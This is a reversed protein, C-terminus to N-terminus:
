KETKTLWAALELFTDFQYVVDGNRMLLKIYEWLLGTYTRRDGDWGNAITLGHVSRVQWNPKGFGFKECTVFGRQPGGAVLVGYYKGTDPTLPVVSAVSLTGNDDIVKQKM